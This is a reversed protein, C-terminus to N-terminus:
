SFYTMTTVGGGGWPKSSHHLCHHVPLLTSEVVVMTGSQQIHAPSVWQYLIIVRLNYDLDGHITILNSGLETPSQQWPYLGPQALRCLWPTSSFSSNVFPLRNQNSGQEVREETKCSRLGMKGMKLGMFSGKALCFHGIKLHGLELIEKRRKGGIRM